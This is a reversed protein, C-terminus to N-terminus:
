SFMAKRKQMRCYECMCGPLGPTESKRARCVNASLRDTCLQVPTLCRQPQALRYPKEHPEPPRRSPNRLRIARSARSTLTNATSLEGLNALASARKRRASAGLQALHVSCSGESSVRRPLCPIYVSVAASSRKSTCHMPPQMGATGMGRRDPPYAHARDAAIEAAFTAAGPLRSLDNGRHLVEPALTERRM